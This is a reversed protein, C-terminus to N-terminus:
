KKIVPKQKEPATTRRIFDRTELVFIRMGEACEMKMDQVMGDKNPVMTPTYIYGRREFDAWVIEQADTRKGEVGFVRGYALLLKRRREEREAVKKPDEM